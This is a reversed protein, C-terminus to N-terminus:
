RLVLYKVWDPWNADMVVQYILKVSYIACVMAVALLLFSVWSNNKM